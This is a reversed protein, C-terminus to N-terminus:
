INIGESKPKMARRWWSIRERGAGEGGGGWQGKGTKKASGLRAEFPVIFCLSCRPTHKQSVYWSDVSSRLM